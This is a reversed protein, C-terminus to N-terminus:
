LAGGSVEKKPVAPIEIKNLGLKIKSKEVIEAIPMDSKIWYDFEGSEETNKTYDVDKINTLFIISVNKNTERIKKAMEMGNMRPMLVDSLILDPKEKETASVGEEGNEATVVSFGESEFKIKLISLFDEDDEVILVKKDIKEM